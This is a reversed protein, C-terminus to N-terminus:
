DEFREGCHPCESADEDVGGGCASCAVKEVAVDAHTEAAEDYGLIAQAAAFHSPVVRLWCGRKPCVASVKGRIRVYKDRYDAPAAFVKDASVSEADALKFAAGFHATPATKADATKGDEPLPALAVGEEKCVAAHDHDSHDHSSKCGALALAAVIVLSFPIRMAHLKTLRLRLQM